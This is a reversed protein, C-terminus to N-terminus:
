SFLSSGSSGRTVKQRCFLHLLEHKEVTQKEGLHFSNLINLFYKWLLTLELISSRAGHRGIGIGVEASTTCYLPQM